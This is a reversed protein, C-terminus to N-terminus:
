AKISDLLWLGLYRPEEGDPHDKILEMPKPLNFPPLELNVPRFHGTLIETNRAVPYTSALLYRIGSRKFNRIVALVDKNPLHIFCDRCLVLDATPLPDTILNAMIFDKGTYLKRNQEVLEPVIDAGTYGIGDLPISSIWHCDGCPADLVRKVGLKNFLAPLEKRLTETYALTSGPGSVSESSGWKNKQYISRFVKQTNQPLYRRARHLIRTFLSM